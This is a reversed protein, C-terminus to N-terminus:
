RGGNGFCWVFLLFIICFSPYTVAIVMAAAPAASPTIATLDSGSARRYTAIFFIHRAADRDSAVDRGRAATVTVMDPGRATFPVGMRPYPRYALAASCLSTAM